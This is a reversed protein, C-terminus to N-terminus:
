NGSAMMIFNDKFLKIAISLLIIGFVKRLIMAGGNGLKKGIWTSSRLVLYVFVINLIIGMQIDIVSYKAKLAIITTMTGAGAVLPFAIPVISGSKTDPPDHFIRIGLIMELGILFIVIAGAVAFSPIDVGFLKLISAGGYLFVTMLLLAVISAKASEIEIGKKKMDILVPISGIIDIVSFLILSVAFLDKFIM